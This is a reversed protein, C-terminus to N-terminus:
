PKLGNYRVVHSDLGVPTVVNFDLNVVVDRVFARANVPVSDKLLVSTSLPVITDRTGSLARNRRLRSEGVSEACVQVACAPPVSVVRRLVATTKKARHDDVAGLIHLVVDINARDHKGIPEVLVVRIFDTSQEVLHGVGDNRARVGIKDVSLSAVRAGPGASTALVVHWHRSEVECRSLYV